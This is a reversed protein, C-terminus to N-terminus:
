LDLFDFIRAYYDTRIYDVSNFIEHKSETYNIVMTDSSKKAFTLQGEAKVLHDNGATFMILPICVKEAYRLLERNAKLSASVWGFTGGYMQYYENLLRQEFQYDYRAKSQCSSEKFIPKGDFYSQGISLEKMKGRLKLYAIYVSIIPKPISGTNMELMPSSFIAKQFYDPYKELFLAGIAGGMSHTYLYLNRNGNMPVVVQNVFEHLDEVYQEYNHVHVLDLRDVTRESYGHGRQELFFFGYGAERFYWAMEHYKGWFECFGHLIVIVAKANEPMEYYYRLKSGDFSKFDASKVVTDRWNKVQNSMVTQFDDEGIINVGNSMSSILKEDRYNEITEIHLRNVM